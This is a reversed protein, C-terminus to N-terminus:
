KHTSKQLFIRSTAKFLQFIWQDSKQIGPSNWVGPNEFVEKLHFWNKFEESFSCENNKINKVKFDCNVFEKVMQYAILDAEYVAM